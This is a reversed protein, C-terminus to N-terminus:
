SHRFRVLRVIFCINGPFDNKRLIESSLEQKSSFIMVFHLRCCLCFIIGIPRLHRLFANRITFRANYIHSSAQRLEISDRSNPNHQPLHTGFM